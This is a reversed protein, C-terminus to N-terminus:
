VKAKGKPKPPPRVHANWNAIYEALCDRLALYCMDWLRDQAMEERGEVLLKNIEAVSPVQLLEPNFKYMRELRYRANATYYGATHDSMNYDDAFGISNHKLVKDLYNVMNDYMVAKTGKTDTLFAARWLSFSIGVMRVIPYWQDNHEKPLENYEQLFRYLRLMIRQVRWRRDIQWRLIDKNFQPLEDIDADEDQFAM